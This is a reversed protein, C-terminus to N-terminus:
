YVKNNIEFSVIFDFEEKIQCFITRIFMPIGSFYIIYNSNNKNYLSLCIYFFFLELSYGEYLNNSTNLGDSFSHM